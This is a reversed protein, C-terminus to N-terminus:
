FQLFEPILDGLVHHAALALVVLGGSSTYQSHERADLRSLRDLRQDDRGAPDPRPAVDRPFPCRQHSLLAWRRWPTGRNLQGTTVAPVTPMLPLVGQEIALVAELKEQSMHWRANVATVDGDSHNLLAKVYDRPIRLSQTPPEATLLCKDV